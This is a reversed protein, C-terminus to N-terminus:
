SATGTATKHSTQSQPRVPNNPRRRLIDFFALAVAILGVNLMYGLTIYVLRDTADSGGGTVLWTMVMALGAFGIAGFSSILFVCGIFILKPIWM